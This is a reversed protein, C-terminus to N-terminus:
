NLNCAYFARTRVKCFVAFLGKVFFTLACVTLADVDSVEFAAESKKMKFDRFDVWSGFWTRGSSLFQDNERM